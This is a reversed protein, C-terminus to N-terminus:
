QLSKEKKDLKEPLEEESREKEQVLIVKVWKLSWELTLKYKATVYVIEISNVM